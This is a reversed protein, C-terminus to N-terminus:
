QAVAKGVHLTALKYGLRPEVTMTVPPNARMASNLEVRDRFSGNGVKVPFRLDRATASKTLYDLAENGSMAFLKAYFSETLDKLIVTVKM